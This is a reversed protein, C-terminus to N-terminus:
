EPKERYGKVRVKVKNNKTGTLHYTTGSLIFGVKENAKDWLWKEDNYILENLRIVLDVKITGDEMVIYDDKNTKVKCNNVKKSM